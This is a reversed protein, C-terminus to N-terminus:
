DHHREMRPELWLWGRWVAYAIAAAAILILLDPTM